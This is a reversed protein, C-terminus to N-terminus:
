LRSAIFLVIPPGILWSTLNMLLSCAFAPGM